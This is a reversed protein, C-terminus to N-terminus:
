VKRSIIQNEFIINLPTKCGTKRFISICMKGILIIHNIRNNEKKTNPNDYALLVGKMMLKPRTGIKRQIYYEIYNWFQKVKLCDYFFHEIFDIKNPCLCCKNNTRYKMKHLMINTAYINHLIKWNLEKLRIEKTVNKALGWINDTLQLGLKNAWFNHACPKTKDAMKEQLSLRITKAKNKYYRGIKSEM